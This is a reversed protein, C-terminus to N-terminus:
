GTTWLERGLYRVSRLRIDFVTSLLLRDTPQQGANHNKEHLGKSISGKSITLLM